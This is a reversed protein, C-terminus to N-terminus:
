PLVFRINSENEDLLQKIYADSSPDIVLEEKIQQWTYMNIKEVKVNTHSPLLTDTNVHKTISDGVLKISPGRNRLDASSADKFEKSGDEDKASIKNLLEKILDTKENLTVSKANSEKNLWEIDNTKLRIEHTLSKIEDNLRVIKHESEKLDRLSAELKGIEKNKEILVSNLTTNNREKDVLCQLEQIRVQLASIKQDKAELEKRFQDVKSITQSSSVNRKDLQVKLQKIENNKHSIEESLLNIQNDRTIIERKESTISDITTRVKDLSQQLTTIDDPKLVLESGKLGEHNPPPDEAGDKKIVKLEKIENELHGM